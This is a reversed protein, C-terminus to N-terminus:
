RVLRQTYCLLGSKDAISIFYTGSGLRNLDTIAVQNLGHTVTQDFQRLDRGQADRLIISITSNSTSNYTINITHDFPCPWVQIGSTNNLKIIAINSYGYHGDLNEVKIRYYIRGTATIASIDDPFGYKTPSNSSGDVPETGISSFSIGDKSREVVFRTSNVENEAVWDLRVANGQLSAKLEFRHLPLIQSNAPISFAVTLISIAIAKYRLTKRM